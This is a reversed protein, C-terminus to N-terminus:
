LGGLSALKNELAPLNDISKTLEAEFATKEWIEFFKLQGVLIVEKELKAYERLAPPILIRNQSDLNCESAGSLFFRKFLRIERDVSSLQSMKTEIEEWERYPYAALCVDSNTVILRSDGNSVLLDRFRPPISIRGKSDIIHTSRGRFM